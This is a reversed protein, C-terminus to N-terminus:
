QWDQTQETPERLRAGIAVPKVANVVLGYSIRDFTRFIMLHGAFEDPLKLNKDNPNLLSKWTGQPYAVRDTRIEGAQYVSYVEGVEIGDQAGRSLVVVDSPGAHDWNAAVGIVRMNEPVAAPAHPYFNLPLPAEEAPLLLDGKRIERDAYTVLLTAPDGAVTVTAVGIEISERALVDARVDHWWESWTWQYQDATAWERKDDRVHDSWLWGAPMESYIVTPRVVVFQQGVEAGASFRRAYAVRGDTSVVSNEEFAAIYPSSEIDDDSLVRQRTLFQRIRSLPVPPIAEEASEERMKPGVDAPGTDVVLHPKGDIYVLSIVDGPYILHPNQIQPNAQWIEPWYWPNKLFRGSIDWLTDGKVVVYTDPHDARLEPGAANVSATLLLAAVVSLAKKLMAAM